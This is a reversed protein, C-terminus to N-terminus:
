QPRAPERQRQELARGAGIERDSDRQRGQLRYIDGLVYHGLPANASDPALELGKAAAAAADPFRAPDGVDLIAKALFFYVESFGPALAPISELLALEERHAGRRSLLLALNFRVRYDWPAEAMETRYEREAGPGDGRQEAIQALLYHAGAAHRDIALAATVAAEADAFRHMAFLTTAAQMRPRGDGPATRSAQTFRELAADHNGLDRLTEGALILADVNSGDRELATTVATIARGPEGAARLITALDILLREDGPFEVLRM